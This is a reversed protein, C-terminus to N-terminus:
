AGLVHRIIFVTVFAAAMFTATAAISRRSFRSLGCIGHGSTCGGGIATGVGVLLGAALLFVPKASITQEPLDSAVLLYGLPALILGGLFALRWLLGDRDSTPLALRGVIGSIGAIRGLSLLLWLASLGILAGGLFSSLPTFETM